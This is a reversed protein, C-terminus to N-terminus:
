SLMVLMKQKIFKKKVQASNNKKKVTHLRIKTLFSRKSGLKKHCVCKVVLFVKDSIFMKIAARTASNFTHFM